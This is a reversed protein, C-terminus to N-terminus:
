SQLRPAMFQRAMSGCTRRTCARWARASPLPRRAQGRRSSKETARPLAQRHPPALLSRRLPRSPHAARPHPHLSTFSALASGARAASSSRPPTPQPSTATRTASSCLSRARRARLWGRRASALSPAPRPAPPRTCPARSSASLIRAAQCTSSRETRPATSCAWGASARIRPSCRPARTDPQPRSFPPRLLLPALPLSRETRGALRRSAARQLRRRPIASPRLLACWHDGATECSLTVTLAGDGRATGDDVERVSCERLMPVVGQAGGHWDGLAAGRGDTTSGVGAGAPPQLGILWAGLNPRAVGDSSSRQSSGGGRRASGKGGHRASSAAGKAGEGVVIFFSISEGARVGDSRLGRVVGAPGTGVNAPEAAAADAYRFILPVLLTDVYSDDGKADGLAATDGRLSARLRFAGPEVSLISVSYIGNGLDELASHVSPAPASAHPGAEDGVDNSRAASAGQAAAAM